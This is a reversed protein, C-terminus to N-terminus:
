FFMMLIRWMIKVVYLIAKFVNVTIWIMRLVIVITNELIMYLMTYNSDNDLMRSQAKFEGIVTNGFLSVNLRDLTENAKRLDMSLSTNIEGISRDTASLLNDIRAAYKNNAMHLLSKSEDVYGTYCDEYHPLHNDNVNVIDKLLHAFQEKLIKEGSGTIIDMSPPCVNTLFNYNLFVVKDLYTQKEGLIGVRQSEIDFKQRNIESDKSETMQVTEQTTDGITQEDNRKPVPNFTVDELHVPTDKIEEVTYRVETKSLDSSSEDNNIVIKPPPQVVEAELSSSSVGRSASAHSIDADLLDGYSANQDEEGPSSRRVLRGIKVKSISEFSKSHPDNAVVEGVDSDSALIGGTSNAYLKKAKSKLNRRLLKLPRASEIPILNVNIDDLSSENSQEQFIVDHLRGSASSNGTDIDTNASGSDPQARPFWLEGNHKQLENWHSTRWSLDNMLEGLELGWTLKWTKGHRSGPGNRLSFANVALPLSRFSVPAPEHHKIRIARNRIVQLPNYVGQVGPHPNPGEPQEMSREMWHYKVAMMAKVSETRNRTARSIHLQVVGSGKSEGNGLADVVNFKSNIMKGTTLLMSALTSARQSASGADETDPRNIETSITPLALDFEFGPGRRGDEFTQKDKKKRSKLQSSSKPNTRVSASRNASTIRLPTLPSPASVSESSANETRM